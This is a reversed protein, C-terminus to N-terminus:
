GATKFVFADPCGTVIRSGKAPYLFIMQAIKVEIGSIKLAIFRDKQQVCMAVLHAKHNVGNM